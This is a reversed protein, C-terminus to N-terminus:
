EAIHIPRHHLLMRHTPIRISFGGELPDISRREMKLCDPLTRIPFVAATHEQLGRLFNKKSQPKTPAMEMPCEEEHPEDIQQITIDDAWAKVTNTKSQVRQARIEELTGLNKMPQPFAVQGDDSRYATAQRGAEVKNLDACLSPATRLGKHRDPEDDEPIDDARFLEPNNFTCSSRWASHWSKLSDNDFEQDESPYSSIGDDHYNQTADSDDLYDIPKDPLGNQHLIANMRFVLEDVQYQIEAMTFEMPLKDRDSDDVKEERIGLWCLFRHWFFSIVEQGSVTELPCHKVKRYNHCLIAKVLGAMFVIMCIVYSIYFMPWLVPFLFWLKSHDPASGVILSSIVEYAPYVNRFPYYHSGFLLNGLCAFATELITYCLMHLLLQGLPPRLTHCWVHCVYISYNRLPLETFKWKPPSAQPIHHGRHHQHLLRNENAAYSSSCRKERKVPQRSIRVVGDTLATLPHNELKQRRQIWGVGSSRGARVFGTDPTRSESGGYGGMGDSSRRHSYASSSSANSTNSDKHQIRGRTPRHIEEGDESLRAADRIPFVAATHPRPLRKLLNKKSQPKTPAMEMPCEEEHPEDIQQITIDDAWAKVTNTKSQVRQARIEELTGLNKM